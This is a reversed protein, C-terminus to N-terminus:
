LKNNILLTLLKNLLRVYNYAFCKSFITCCFSLGCYSSRKDQIMLICLGRRHIRFYRNFLYIFTYITVHTKLKNRKEKKVNLPFIIELCYVFLSKRIKFIMFVKSFKENNFPFLFSVYMSCLYMNHSMSKLATPSNM